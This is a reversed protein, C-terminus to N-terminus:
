DLQPWDGTAGELVSMERPEFAQWASCGGEHFPARPRACVRPRLEHPGGSEDIRPRARALFAEGLPASQGDAGLRLIATARRYRGNGNGYDGLFVVVADGEGDRAALWGDPGLEQASVELGRALPTTGFFLADVGFRLAYRRTVRVGGERVGATIEVHAEDMRGPEFLALSFGFGTSSEETITGWGQARPARISEIAALGAFRVSGELAAAPAEAADLDPADVLPLERPGEPEVGRLAFPVRRYALARRGIQEPFVVWGDQPTEDLLASWGARDLGGVRGEEGWVEGSRLERGGWDVPGAVRRGGGRTELIVETSEEFLQPLEASPYGLLALLPGTRTTFFLDVRSSRPVRLRVRGADDAIAREEDGEATLLEVEAGPLPAGAFDALTLELETFPPEMPADPSGGDPRSGPADLPAGGDPPAVAADREGEAGEGSGYCAILLALWPAVRRM